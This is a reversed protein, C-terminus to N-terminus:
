LVFLAAYYIVLTVAGVPVALRAWERSRIGLKGAAIINPINGPILMGGSVLLGMLIARLQPESMRPSVEAAALTANDLIASVTNVWYLVRADLGIVYRDVLPKFGEGLLTLAMVFLYVRAARILVSRYSEVPGIPALQDRPVTQVRLLAAVIGFVVVGPVIWGGLLRALYWFDKGLKATAITSLPEGVPTLAAGLGISFCALIVVRVEDSRRLRLAAIFEVLVLAAIIATIISSALGLLTTAIAALVAPGGRALLWEVGRDLRPRGWIFLVGTAAVALTIGVPHSLAEGILHLTLVGSALASLVGAVFLFAELNQEVSHFFLPAVLVVVLIALNAAVSFDM